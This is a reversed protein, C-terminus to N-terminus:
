FCQLQESYLLNLVLVLRQGALNNHQMLDKGDTNDAAVPCDVLAVPLGAVEVFFLLCNLLASLPLYEVLLPRHLFLLPWPHLSPPSLHAFAMPPAQSFPPPVLVVAMGVLVNDVGGM